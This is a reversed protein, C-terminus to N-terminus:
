NQYSTVIGNELYVYVNLDQYVWQESVTSSTTTKNIENPYGMSLILDYDNMGIELKKSKYLNIVPQIKEEILKPYYKNGIEIHSKKFIDLGKNKLYNVNVDLIDQKIETGQQTTLIFYIMSYKQLVEKEREGLQSEKEEFISRCEKIADSLCIKSIEELPILNEEQPEGNSEKESISEKQTTCATLFLLIFIFILLNRSM